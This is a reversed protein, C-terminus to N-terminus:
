SDGARRRACREGIHSIHAETVRRQLSIVPRSLQARMCDAGAHALGAIPEVGNKTRGLAM